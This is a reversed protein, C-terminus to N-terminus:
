KGLERTVPEMVKTNREVALVITQEEVGDSRSAVIPLIQRKDPLGVRATFSGDPGLKIPEGSMTVFADPDAMGYVIMEADIQFKMRRKQPLVAQAGNGFRTQMPSGMPRRLREEFLTQLEGSGIAGEFGGSMAYIRESNQVIDAWNGDIIDSSGSRPTTVVNSRALSHFHGDAALYGVEVRFSCPPDKVDIYWNSVAGHIEIVRDIHESNTALTGQTIRVLQLVPKATHWREAM